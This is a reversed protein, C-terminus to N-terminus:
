ILKKIKEMMYLMREEAIYKEIGDIDFWRIDDVESEQRAFLTDESAAALYIIDYHHHAPQFIGSSSTRDSVDWM